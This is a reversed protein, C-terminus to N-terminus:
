MYMNDPQGKPVSQNLRLIYIIFLYIHFFTSHTTKGNIKSCAIKSTWTTKSQFCIYIYSLIKTNTSSHWYFTYYLCKNVVSKKQPYQFISSHHYSEGTFSWGTMKLSWSNLNMLNRKDFTNISYTYIHFFNLSDGNIFKSVFWSISRTISSQHIYLYIYM